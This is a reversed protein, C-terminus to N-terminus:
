RIYYGRVHYTAYCNSLNHGSHGCRRCTGKVSISNSKSCSREHVKCGYETTFTRNCYDCEWDDDSDSEESSDSDDDEDEDEYEIVDGDIDTKAYCNKNFHGKRGCNTCLDKAAWIERKLLFVHEDSLDIDVYSGGRVKDIGYKAMYEKTKKDEEFPSVNEIINEISVPKYKKTWASGTGNMHQEYRKAVNSSKGVYFRGGQCRLVYINTKSM